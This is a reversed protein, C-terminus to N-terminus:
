IDAQLNSAFPTNESRTAERWRGGGGGVAAAQEGDM